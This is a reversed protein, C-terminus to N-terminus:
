SSNGWQPVLSLHDSASAQLVENGSAREETISPSHYYWFGCGLPLPALSPVPSKLSQLQAKLAANKTFLEVIKASIGATNKNRYKSKVLKNPKAALPAACYQPATFRPLPAGQSSIPPSPYAPLGSLFHSQPPFGSPPFSSASFIPRPHTPLAGLGPLLSSPLAPGTQSLNPYSLIPPATFHINSGSGNL